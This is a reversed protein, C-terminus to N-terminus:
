SKNRELYAILQENSYNTKFSSNPVPYNIDKNVKGQILQHLYWGDDSNSGFPEPTMTIIQYGFREALEPFTNFNSTDLSSVEELILFRLGKEEKFSTISLRGIGLLVRATYSEGTSGPYENDDEDKFETKLTFYTKPDLLDSFAIGKQYGSVDKFFDEAFQEVSESEFLEGTEGATQAKSQLENIWQISFNKNTNFRVQFYYKDSILKNKFFLNLKATVGKYTEFEDQTKQFIKLMIERLTSSMKRKEENAKNLAQEINKTEVITNGLLKRELRKFHFTKNEIQEKVEIDDKTEPFDKIVDEYKLQYLSKKDSYNQDVERTDLSELEKNNMNSFLQPYVNEKEKKFDELEKGFGEKEQQIKDADFDLEIVLKEKLELETKAKQHAQIAKTHIGSLINQQASYQKITEQIKDDLFHIPIKSKQTDLNKKLGKVETEITLKFDPLNKVISVTSIYEGIKRRDPIEKDWIFDIDPLHQLINDIALNEIDDIRNKLEALTKSIEKQKKEFADQLNNANNFIQKENNYSAFYNLNGIKIWYGGATTDETINSENLIDLSNTYKISKTVAKPKQWKVDLFLTLLITEQAKSLTKKQNIIESALTEENKYDVLRQMQKLRSQEQKLNTKLEELQTSQQKYQDEIGEVSGYKSWVSQLIKIKTIIDEIPLNEFDFPKVAENSVDPLQCNNLKNVNAKKKSYTNYELQYNNLDQLSKLYNKHNKDAENEAEKLTPIKEKLDTIEKNLTKYVKEDAKWKDKLNKFATKKLLYSKKFSLKEATIFETEKKELGELFLRKKELSDTVKKLERHRLVLNDLREKNRKYETEIEDKKDDFLFSKLSLDKDTNLTNAKSFAQLVKAFATLHNDISLNLPLIEKDFLFQYLEKKESKTSFYKLVLQKSDRLHSILNGIKPIETKNNKSILFDKNYLLKEEPILYGTLKKRETINKRQEAEPNYYTNLIRFMRIPSSSTNPINVGITIYQKPEVEINIFFYADNTKYPITFIQRHEKKFSETGFTIKKSDAIFLIQLLDAVLSKGIGNKGTFDTRTHHLLYDQNYHKIVGVTSISHILPLKSM